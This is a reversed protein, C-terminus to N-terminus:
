DNPLGFSAYVTNRDNFFTTVRGKITADDDIIGKLLTIMDNGVTVDFVRKKDAIELQVKSSQKLKKMIVLDDADAADLVKIGFTSANAGTTTVTVKTDDFKHYSNGDIQDIFVPDAGVENVAHAVFTEDITAGNQKVIKIAM